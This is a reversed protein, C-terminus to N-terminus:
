VKEVDIISIKDLFAKPTVVVGIEFFEDMNMNFNNVFIPVDDYEVDIHLRKADEGIKNVDKFDRDYLKQAKVENNNIYQLVINRNTKSLSIYKSHFKDLAQGMTIQAVAKCAGSHLFFENIFISELKTTDDPVIIALVYKQAKKGYLKKIYEKFYYQCEAIKEAFSHYFPINPLLEIGPMEFSKFEENENDWVLINNNTIIMPITKPM